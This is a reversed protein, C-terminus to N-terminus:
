FIGLIKISWFITQKSHSLFLFIQLYWCGSFIAMEEGAWGWGEFFTFKM